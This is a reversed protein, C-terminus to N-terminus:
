FVDHQMAECTLNGGCLSKAPSGRLWLSVGMVSNPGSIIVGGMKGSEEMRGGVRHLLGEWDVVEDTCLSHCPDSRFYESGSELRESGRLMCHCALTSDAAMCYSILTPLAMPGQDYSDNPETKTAAGGIQAGECSWQSIGPIIDLSHSLLVNQLPEYIDM